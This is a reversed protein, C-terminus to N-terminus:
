RWITTTLIKTKGSTAEENIISALPRSTALAIAGLIDMILNLWILQTPGFPPETLGITGVILTAVCAFNCTV